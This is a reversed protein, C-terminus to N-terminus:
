DLFCGKGGKGGSIDTIFEGEIYRAIGQFTGGNQGQTPNKYNEYKKEKSNDAIILCDEGKKGSM